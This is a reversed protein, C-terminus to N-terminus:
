SKIKLQRTDDNQGPVVKGKALHQRHIYFLILVLVFSVLGNIFFGYQEGITDMAFGTLSNGIPTSGTNILVYISMVRGRYNDDTNLQIRTNARNLFCLTLFGIIVLLAIIYPISHLGILTMMQLGGMTLALSVLFYKSKINRGPGAMFLAGAMSGLGLVSVLLSYTTEDGLLVDKAYVPLIVNSNMAFTCVAAMILFTPLLKRNHVTYSIGSKVEQLLKRESDRKRPAGAVTIAAIGWIVPIFSLGNILFCEAIGIYKMILGSIAPCLIRALNFTTSNLSIANQLDNKGVLEVFYAQRTPQDISNGIGAVIALVAFLWYTTSGSWVLIALLL